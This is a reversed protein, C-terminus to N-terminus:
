KVITITKPHLDQEAKIRVLANYDSRLRDLEAQKQVVLRQSEMLQEQIASDDPKQTELLIIKDKLAQITQEATTQAKSTQFLQNSLSSIQTQSQTKVAQVATEKQSTYVSKAVALVGGGSLSGIITSVLPNAKVVAFFNTIHPMIVTQVANIVPNLVGTRYLIFGLALGAFSLIVTTKNM